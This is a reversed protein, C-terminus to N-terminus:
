HCNLRRWNWVPHPLYWFIAFLISIITSIKPLWHRGGYCKKRTLNYTEAPQLRQLLLLVKQHEEPGLLFKWQHHILNGFKGFSQFIRLTCLPCFHAHLQCFGQLPTWLLESVNGWKPIVHGGLITYGYLLISCSIVFLTESSKPYPLVRSPRHCCFDNIFVNSINGSWM